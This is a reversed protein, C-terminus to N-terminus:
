LYKGLIDKNFIQCLYEKDQYFESMIDFLAKSSNIISLSGASPIQKLDVDVLSKTVKFQLISRLKKTIEAHHNKLSEMM